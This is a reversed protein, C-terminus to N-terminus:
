RPKFSHTIMLETQFIFYSYRPWQRPVRIKKSLIYQLISSATDISFLDYFCLSIITLFKAEHFLPRPKAAILVPYYPLSSPYETPYRVTSHPFVSPPTTSLHPYTTVQSPCHTDLLFLRYIDTTEHFFPRHRRKPFHRVPQQTCQGGRFHSAHPPYDAAPTPAHMHGSQRLPVTGSGASAM